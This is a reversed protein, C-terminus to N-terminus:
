FGVMLRYLFRYPTGLVLGLISIPLIQDVLILLIFIAYGQAQVRDFAESVQYAWRARITSLIGRLISAGDLPPIPLLNFLAIGINVSIVVLLLRVLLWPLPLGLRIPVAVMAALVLNSLPGAAAVIGMGVRPGRRLYVPNVPVPKGWGIGFGYFISFLMMMTGMPDLHVLPNLSLRGYYRATPDGLENAMWAHAFEHVDIAILLSILFAAIELPDRGLLM